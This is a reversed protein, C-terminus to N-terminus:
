PASRFVAPLYRPYFAGSLRYVAGSSYDTLYVEGAEDEGFTTIVFPTDLLLAAEWGSGGPRLGWLKGNAYDAVLYIGQLAPFTPGRYVMGGTVAIGQTHDYEWIPMTLGATLGSCQPPDYCLSGEMIPWGYNEGGLSAAAQFDVEERSSQGVDGLYLDGTQRDFSFRWPNRLGLAWIEPLHGSAGVFPNSPPVAYGAGLSTEVDLRLLKGLLTTPDQPRNDPAGGGDGMGVYLYGDQPSFALQGGTHNAAPQAVHLIVQEGAPDAQDPNGPMLRYRAVITDGDPARTYNVYFYGKSAYGPPFAISLLGREGGSLVRSTIDLFPTTELTDGRLIMVRGGQEVVFLRGSGDGANAIHVPANLGGSVQSLLIEPWGQAAVGLPTVVLILLGLLGARLAPIRRSRPNM